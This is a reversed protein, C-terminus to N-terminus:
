IFADKIYNIKLKEGDTLVEAIDFRIKYSFLSNEKIYRKAALRIHYVKDADVADAPRGFLSTNKANRTKVETFIVTSGRKSIIDIEGGKVTYNRSLIKYFRRKLYSCVANEGMDGIARASTRDKNM